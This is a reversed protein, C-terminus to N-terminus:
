WRLKVKRTTETGQYSAVYPSDPFQHAVAELGAAQTLIETPRPDEDQM